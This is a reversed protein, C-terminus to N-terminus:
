SELHRSKIFGSVEHFAKTGTMWKVSNWARECGSVHHSTHEIEPESRFCSYFSVISRIEAPHMNLGCAVRKQIEPPIYGFIEQTHMLVRIARSSMKGYHNIVEDLEAFMEEQFKEEQDSKLANRGIWAIAKGTADTLMKPKLPKSLHSVVGLKRTEKITKKLPNGTMAVIAIGPRYQRMWQILTIGDIGRLSFETFVLDFMYNRIKHIAEKGSFVGEVFHGEQELTKWASKIIAADNDVVLINIHDKM